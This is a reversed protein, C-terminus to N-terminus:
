KIPRSVGKRERAVKRKASRAANRGDKQQIGVVRNLQKAVAAILRKEAAQAESRRHRETAAIEAERQKRLPIIEIRAASKDQQHTLLTTPLRLWEVGRPPALREHFTMLERVAATSLRRGNDRADKLVPATEPRKMLLEVWGAATLAQAAKPQPQKRGIGQSESSVPLGANLQAVEAYVRSETMGPRLDREGTEANIIAWCPALQTEIPKALDYAHSLGVVFPGTAVAEAPLKRKAVARRKPAKKDIM